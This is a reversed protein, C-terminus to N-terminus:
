QFSGFLISRAISAKASSLTILNLLSEKRSNEFALHDTYIESYRLLM